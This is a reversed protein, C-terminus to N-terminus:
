VALALGAPADLAEALAACAEREAASLERHEAAHELLLRAIARGRTSPQNSLVLAAVLLSVPNSSPM